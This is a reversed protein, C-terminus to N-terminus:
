KENLINGLIHVVDVEFKDLTSSNEIDIFTIKDEFMEQTLYNRSDNSFDCGERQIRVITINETGIHGIVPKIEEPFGGDSVAVVGEKPLSNVFMKGFADKGFSPKVVNESVHILWERKSYLKGNVDYIPVDKWWSKESIGEEMLVYNLGVQDEKFYDEVTLNYGELFDEVPIHLTNAAVKFLEDKFERHHAVLNSDLTNICKMVAKAAVEKGSRPPANFVIVKLM